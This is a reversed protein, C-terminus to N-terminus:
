KKKYEVITLNDDFKGWMVPHQKGDTQRAVETSVYKFIESATIKRNRDTDAAGRLGRLLHKTFYGNAAIASEISYENGRSSLFFMINGPHPDTTAGTDPTRIAGSHCADAFIFKNRAKSEKMINIVDAYLLGEKENTMDYTCFGGPYGHGSFYFVIKDDAGARGFQSRLSKVIQAKTAYKGTITIVNDTGIKYLAAMAKADTETKSLDKLQPDAYTAIGVCVVYTEANVTIFALLSALFVILPRM